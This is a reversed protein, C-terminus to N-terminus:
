FLRIKKIVKQKFNAIYKLYSRQQIFIYRKLWNNLLVYYFMLSLFHPRLAFAAFLAHLTELIHSFNRPLDVQELLIQAATVIYTIM